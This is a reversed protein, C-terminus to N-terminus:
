FYSLSVYFKLYVFPLTGSGTACVFRAVALPANRGFGVCTLHLPAARKTIYSAFADSGTTRKTFFIFRTVSLPANQLFLAVRWQWHRATM